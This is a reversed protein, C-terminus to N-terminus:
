RQRQVNAREMVSRPSSLYTVATTEVLSFLSCMGKDCYGSEPGETMLELRQKKRWLRRTQDRFLVMPLRGPYIFPMNPSQSRCPERSAPAARRTSWITETKTQKRQSIETLSHKFVATTRFPLLCGDTAQFCRPSPKGPSSKGEWAGKNGFTQGVAVGKECRFTNTDREGLFEPRPEQATVQEAACCRCM